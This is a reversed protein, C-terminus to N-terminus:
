NQSTSPTYTRQALERDMMFVAHPNDGVLKLRDVIEKVSEEDEVQEDIFWQLFSLTARDKLDDALDALNNINETVWKEHELTKEFVALANEWDYEPKEIEKLVVREGRSIVYDFMKMAHDMEEQFQVRMWNAFGKLGKDEFYAAMSLYLYASYFEKNIQENLADVMEKRM